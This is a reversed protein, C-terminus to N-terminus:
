AALEIDHAAHRGPSRVLFDGGLERDAFVRDLRMQHVDEVLEASRGPDLQGQKRRVVAQQVPDSPSTRHCPAVYVGVKPHYTQPMKRAINVKSWGPSKSRKSRKILTERRRATRMTTMRAPSRRISVLTWAWSPPMRRGGGEVRCQSFSSGSRTGAAECSVPWECTM